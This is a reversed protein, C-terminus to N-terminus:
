FGGPVGGVVDMIHRVVELLQAALSMILM